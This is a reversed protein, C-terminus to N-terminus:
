IEQIDVNLKYIRIRKDSESREQTILKDSEASFLVDLKINVKEILSDKLRLKQSFTVARASFLDIIKETYVEKNNAFLKLLQYENENIRVRNSEYFLYENNFELFSNKKLTSLNKSRRKRLLLFLILVTSLISIFLVVKLNNSNWSNIMIFDNKTNLVELNITNLQLKTGENHSSTFYKLKGFHVYPSLHKSLKEILPFNSIVAFTLNETDFEILSQNKFFYLKSDVTFDSNEMTLSEFKNTQGIFYWKKEKINFRWIESSDLFNTRDNQDIKKGGLLFLDDKVIIYKSDFIGEPIISSDTKLVEWEKSSTDFYTFFNRADFFGYGGFRYIKDDYEFLPALLQSRHTYSNDIRTITNNTLRLVKGGFHQVFYIEENVWIPHYAKIEEPNFDLIKKIKLDLDSILVNSNTIILCTNNEESCNIRSINNPIENRILLLTIILKLIIGM